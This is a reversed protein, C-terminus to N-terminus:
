PIYYLMYYLTEAIANDITTLLYKSFLLYFLGKITQNRSLKFYPKIIVVVCISFINM